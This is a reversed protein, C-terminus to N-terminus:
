RKELQGDDNRGEEMEIEGSSWENNAQVKKQRWSMGRKELLYILLICLLGSGALLIFCWGPGLKQLLVDLVALGGAALECRVLNSAAQATSPCDPHVDVLLITLATFVGQMTLGIFFQLVLPVAM